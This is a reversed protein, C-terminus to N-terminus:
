SFMPPARLQTYNLSFSHFYTDVFFNDLIVFIENKELNPVNNIKYFPKIKFAM